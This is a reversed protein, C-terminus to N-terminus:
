PILGMAKLKCSPCNPPIAQPLGPSFSPVSVPASQVPVSQVPASQVPAAQVPVSQVPAAAPTSVVPKAAVVTKPGAPPGDKYENLVSALEPASMQRSTRFLQKKQEDDIVVVAPLSPNNFLERVKRGHATDTDIQAVVYNEAASAFMRDEALEEVDVRADAGNLVVLMPQHTEGAKKYAATYSDSDVTAATAPATLLGGAAVLSTLLAARLGTLNQRVSVMFKVRWHVLRPADSFVLDKTAAAPFHGM